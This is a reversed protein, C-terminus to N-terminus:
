RTYRVRSGLESLRSAFEEALAIGFRPALPCKKANFSKTIEIKLNPRLMYLVHHIIISFMARAGKVGKPVM